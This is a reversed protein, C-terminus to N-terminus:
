AQGSRRNPRPQLEHGPFRRADRRSRIRVVRADACLQAIQKSNAWRWPSLSIPPSVQSRAADRAVIDALSLSAPVQAVPHPAPPPPHPPPHPEPMGHTFWMKGGDYSSPSPTPVHRQMQPLPPEIRTRPSELSTLSPPVPPPAASSSEAEMTGEPVADEGFFAKFVSSQQWAQIFFEQQHADKIAKVLRKGEESQLYGEIVPGLSPILNLAVGWAAASERMTHLATRYGQAPGRKKQPRM